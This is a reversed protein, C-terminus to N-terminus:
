FKKRAQPPTATHLERMGWDSRSIVELQEARAFNAIRELNTVIRRVSGRAEETLLQLLDDGVKIDSAYHRNLIRADELDAPQAQAWDMIRGHFREWKQLKQPLLEEGILIFPAKSEEYLDRVLEVLDQAVANDFEDLITPRQSTALEEAVQLAMDSITRAPKIGMTRLMALLLDKKNWTSRVEIYYSQHKGAIYAAAMSKGFGSPGSFTVLGPLHDAREIVSTTLTDLVQLNKLPASVGLYRSAPKEKVKNNSLSM